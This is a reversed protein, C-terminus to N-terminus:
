GNGLKQRLFPVAREATQLNEKQVARFFRALEMDGSEEADQAYLYYTEAGQLAHYMVSILDYIADQMGPTTTDSM